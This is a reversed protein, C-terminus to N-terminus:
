ACKRMTGSSNLVIVRTTRDGPALGYPSCPTGAAATGGLTFVIPWVVVRTAIGSNTFVAAATAGNTGTLPATLDAPEPASATGSGLGVVLVAAALSGLTTALAGRRATTSVLHGKGTSSISM